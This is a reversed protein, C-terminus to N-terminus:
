NWHWWLAKGVEDWDVISLLLLMAWHLSQSVSSVGCWTSNTIGTDDECVSYLRILASRNLKVHIVFFERHFRWEIYFTRVSPSFGKWLPHAPPPLYGDGWHPYAARKQPQSKRNKKRKKEDFESSGSASSLLIHGNLFHTNILPTALRDRATSHRHATGPSSRFWDLDGPAQSLHSLFRGLVNKKDQEM